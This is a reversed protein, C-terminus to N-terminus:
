LSMIEKLLNILNEQSKDVVLQIHIVEILRQLLYYLNLRETCFWSNNM